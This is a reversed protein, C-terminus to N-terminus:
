LKKSLKFCEIPSEDDGAVSVGVDVSPSAGDDDMKMFNPVLRTRAMAMVLNNKGILNPNVAYM